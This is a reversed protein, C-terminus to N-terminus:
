GRVFWNNRKVHCEPSCTTASLNLGPKGYPMFMGCIMCRPRKHRAEIRRQERRWYTACRVSCWLRPRRKTAVRGTLEVGCGKCASSSNARLSQM